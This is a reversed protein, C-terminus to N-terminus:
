RAVEPRRLMEDVADDVADDVAGAAMAEKIRRLRICRVRQIRGAGTLYAPAGVPRRCLVSYDRIESIVHKRQVRCGDILLATVFCM